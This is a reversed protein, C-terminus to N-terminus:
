KLVFTSADINGRYLSLEKGIDIYVKMDAPTSSNSFRPWGPANFGLYKKEIDKLDPANSDIYALGEKVAERFGAVVAPNKKAWEGTTIWGSVLVDPNVEAFFEAAIYGAGSNVIATRFPEVPTAADITGNRLMDPMQPLQAEIITVGKPNVGANLMWKRLFVDMVNNLGSVAVKKGLLDAPKEFKLDKRFTLSITPREKIHRAAGAILVLDLGGDVAQLLSPMTTVGIQMSGSVLAPPVNTIIPVRTVTADINNKEFFGKEKAVYVALYDSATAYGITVKAMDAQATALTAALTAAALAIARMM